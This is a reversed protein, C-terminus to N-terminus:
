SAYAFKEFHMGGQSIHLVVFCTVIDGIAALGLQTKIVVFFSNNEQSKECPEGVSQVVIGM